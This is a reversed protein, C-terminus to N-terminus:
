WAAGAMRARLKRFVALLGLSILGIVLFFFHGPMWDWWWHYFRLYLLILFFGAGLNVAISFGARIGLWVTIGAVAFGMVQYIGEVMHESWPLYSIQGKESLILIALFLTLLAIMQYVPGFERYGRKGIPNVTTLAAAALLVGGILFNEPRQPFSLWHWGWLSAFSAAIFGVLCVLGAALPLRLRYAYALALAFASWVLLAGRGPTLNFITGLVNLNLVCAGLAVLSLLSAYYLTRERRAAFETAALALLPTLILVAVQLPTTLFGWIRHFFLVVAACLAVGGLTSAIRMGWSFQKQTETTDVDFEATLAALTADLHADLSAKQAAPLLLAGERELEALEERFARIRDVRRQADRKGAAEIM